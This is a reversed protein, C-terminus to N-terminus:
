KLWKPDHRFSVKTPFIRGNRQAEYRLEYNGSNFKRADWAFIIEGGSSTRPPSSHVVKGNNFIKFSTIKVPVSSHLVFEYRGSTQGLTVPLYMLNSPNFALARLSNQNVQAKTLVSTSWTFTYFSPEKKLSINDLQYDKELSRVNVEPNENSFRPIMLKLTSGFRPINRTTFSILNIGGSVQRNKIGECRNNERRSYEVSQSNVNNTCATVPLQNFTAIFCVAFFLSYKM